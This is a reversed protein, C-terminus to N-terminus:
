DHIQITTTMATGLGLATLLLAGVGSWKFLMLALAAVWILLLLGFRVWQRRMLALSWPFAVLVPPMLLQTLLAKM